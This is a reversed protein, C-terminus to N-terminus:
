NVPDASIYRGDDFAVFFDELLPHRIPQASEDVQLNREAVYTMHTADHVLVHYWPRNKPPRSRAMQNYWDDSAQCTADVDVIVGRYEFLRHSVLQGVAFKSRRFPTVKGM